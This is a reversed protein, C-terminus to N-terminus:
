KVNQQIFAVAKTYTDILNSGMWGHGENPYVVMEVKVSAAELKAKLATSQVLPVVYDMAGHFIQTPVSQSSVFNIPSADSYVSPKAAPTFGLFNRLTLQSADPFPHNNYLSVLDTPGFLDIVGKIRGASNNKYTHLLALHAGASAGILVMKNTNIKYDAAKSVILDIASQIDNAQTPFQNNGNSALRYNINVFAFDPLMVRLAAIAANFESKDGGSWSGGHILVVVKTKELTRAAPLYVDMKQAPGPGYSVNMNDQQALPEEYESIGKNCGINLVSYMLISLLFGAISNMSFNQIRLISYFFIKRKIMLMKSCRNTIPNHM